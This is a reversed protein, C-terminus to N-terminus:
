SILKIPINQHFKSIDGSITLAITTDDLEIEGRNKAKQYSEIMKQPIKSPDTNQTNELIFNIASGISDGGMKLLGDSAVVVMLPTNKDFTLEQSNLHYHDRYIASTPADGSEPTATTYIAEPTFIFIPSDGSWLLKVSKSEKDEKLIATSLTTPSERALTSKLGSELTKPLNSFSRIFFNKLTNKISFIDQNLDSASLLSIAKHAARSGHYATTFGSETLRAGSGGMGDAVSILSINSSELNFQEAIPDADENKPEAHIKVAVTFSSTKEKVESNDVINTPNEQSSSEDLTPIHWIKKDINSISKEKPTLLSKSIKLRSDPNEQPISKTIPNINKDSELTPTHWLEATGEDM